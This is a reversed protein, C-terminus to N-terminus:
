IELGNKSGSNLDYFSFTPMLGMKKLTRIKGLDIYRRLFIRRLFKKIKM